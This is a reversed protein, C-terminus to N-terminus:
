AADARDHRGDIRRRRARFGTTDVVGVADNALHDLTYPANSFDFCTSQGTDRNDDRIVHFKREVFDAIFPEPWQIGQASAGM